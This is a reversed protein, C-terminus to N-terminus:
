ARAEDKLRGDLAPHIVLLDEHFDASEQNDNNAKSDSGGFCDVSSMDERATINMHDVYHAKSRLQLIVGSVANQWRRAIMSKKSDAQQKRRDIERTVINLTGTHLFGMGKSENFLRAMRNVYRSGLLYNRVLASMIQGNEEDVLYKRNALAGFGDHGETMYQRTLIKYVRGSKERKVEDGDVFGHPQTPAEQMLRIGRVRQGAPLRSDWSVRFGSIVPFRGDQAPYKSLAAEMIDWIGEGDIEIAVLPDEFSLIELINGLTIDGVPYVSDGRLAGANVIVGDSGSGTKNCLADDYAHRLVDAIWNAAATEGGRLLNRRLNLEVDTVCVPAKLTNSVSTLISDLIGKLGESSPLGPTITHRKGHVAKIVKRRISGEPTDELELTLESLERFDTGSKVLLIDSHDVDSGPGGDVAEYGEWSSMGNSVFYFHDHGGLILDVGHSLSVPTIGQASPSLALVDKALQLDNPLRCHTLALILECKYEGDPKRLIQSLEKATDAMSRYKFNPPWSSITGIWQEEVLGIVGIRMGAREIVEFQHLHEPPLNTEEDIVNSMLWPFKTEQVLKALQPYGPM